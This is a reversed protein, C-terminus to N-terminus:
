RGGRRRRDTEGAGKTGCRARGPSPIAAEEPREGRQQMHRIEDWARGYEVKVADLRERVKQIDGLGSKEMEWQRRLDQLQKEVQRIEVQVEALRELAHEEEEHGLMREALQLQLLRRQLVDIETPVSQLEMSLRSAAEDVLDIAKDPLFRDTIYRSALKAATVLASDKIKVKHHIEYREKLGRLIAITDEISPEGVFVPQFRRELAPDKEIHERYEDLTTAGICRLEGRALAPKLLNAADMSGEAKGAGVVLHLEDIFLIIRGESQTVDKLVAKLREEFEGRFKTGAVLAGMDLAILRRHQLSEPVDGSVIRQALGEVIATKGVGPEGILVPNNKTRRTLVQIVRRIESDRGIVPDMKGNRALEVLDRGYRELAQYKDEPNQDTVRQGGRVKQLSQLVEKETIGLAELLTQARSKVKLLALLLHEVSVYQDKM